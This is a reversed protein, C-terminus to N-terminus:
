PKKPVSSAKFSKLAEDNLSRCWWTQRLLMRSAKIDPHTELFRDMFSGFSSKYLM